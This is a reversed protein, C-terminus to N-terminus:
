SKFSHGFCDPSPTPTGGNQATGFIVFPHKKKSTNGERDKFNNQDESRLNQTLKTRGIREDQQKKFKTQGGLHKTWKAEGAILKKPGGVMTAGTKSKLSQSEM